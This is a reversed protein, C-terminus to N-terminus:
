WPSANYKAESVVIAVFSEECYPLSSNTALLSIIHKVVDTQDSDDQIILIECFMHLYRLQVVTALERGWVFVLGWGHGTIYIYPKMRLM